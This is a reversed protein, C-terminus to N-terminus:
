CCHLHHSFSIAVVVGVVCSRGERPFDRLGVQAITQGDRIGLVVPSTSEDLFIDVSYLFRSSAVTAADASLSQANGGIHAIVLCSVLSAM